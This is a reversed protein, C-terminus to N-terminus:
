TVKAGADDVTAGYPLPAEAITWTDKKRYDLSKSLDRPPLGVDARM